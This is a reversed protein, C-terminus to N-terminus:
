IEYYVCTHAEGRYAITDAQPSRVMGCKEMVRISAANEAFAGARIPGFGAGQLHDIVARLMETAYGRGWFSPHIVYGLEISSGEIQVDNVFGILTGGAYIGRVFRDPEHSLDTFRDVMRDLAARDAFDPIMYTKKIAEETLLVALAQRDGAAFPQLCLRETCMQKTMAKM